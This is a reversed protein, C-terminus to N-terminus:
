QIFFDIEGKGARLVEPIGSVLNIVSTPENDCPGGDIVLDIESELIDRIVAADNRPLEEGPLILTSSMIPEQLMDLLMKVIPFDPVRLGISRRKPNQLRRPVERTAALIFTYPGPTFRKLLRYMDNDVTAYLSLESLDQCVLSFNHDSSIKRIRAIREMAKKSGMACGLAYSSDTPYAIVGGQKIIEVAQRILRAQPNMPHISFYQAM